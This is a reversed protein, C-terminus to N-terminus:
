YAVHRLVERLVESYRINHVGGAAILRSHDTLVVCVDTEHRADAFAAVNAATDYTRAVTQPCFIVDFANTGLM